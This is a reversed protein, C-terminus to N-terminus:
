PAPLRSVVSGTRDPRTPSTIYHHMGTISHVIRVVIERSSRSAARTRRAAATRPMLTLPNMAWVNFSTRVRGSGVLSRLM